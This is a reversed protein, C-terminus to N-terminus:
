LGHTFAGATLTTMNSPKAPEDTITTELVCLFNTHHNEVPHIVAMAAEVLPSVYITNESPQVIPRLFRPRSDGVYTPTPQPIPSFTWRGAIQPTGSFPQPASENLQGLIVALGSVIKRQNHIHTLLWWVAAVLLSSVLADNAIKTLLTLSIPM